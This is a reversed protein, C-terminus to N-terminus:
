GPPMRTLARNLGLESERAQKEADSEIGAEGGGTEPQDAPGSDALEDNRRQKAREDTPKTATMSNEPISSELRGFGNMKATTSGASPAYSDVVFFAAAFRGKRAAPM